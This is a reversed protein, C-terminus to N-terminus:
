YDSREFDSIIRNIIPDIIQVWKVVNAQDFYVFWIDSSKKYQHTLKEFKNLYWKQMSEDLSFIYHSKTPKKLNEKIENEAHYIIELEEETLFFPIRHNVISATGIENTKSIQIEITFKSGAYKEFGDQSCQFWIVLYTEKLPKYFGLMGSKTKKFGNAKLKPYIISNIVKYVETSKM